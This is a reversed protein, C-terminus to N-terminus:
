AQRTVSLRAMQLARRALAAGQLVVVLLTQYFPPNENLSNRLSM